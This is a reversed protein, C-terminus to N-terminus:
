FVFVEDSMKASAGPQKYGLSVLSKKAAAVMGPPGCIMVKSGEESPSPLIEAMMDKTVFGSGFKWESSHSELVYYVKFFKPYRRAFIDLEERLLIDQETRNAYILSIETTDRDSECIARIVQFMPTIGTGGAIMGVKKCLRRSYRMAGKPGRFHVEDGINLNALYGNTMKGDPYVKILLELIGKNANNSTPTYSRTVAEGDIVATIAVHQGTPLGLIPHSSPLTFTLRYVNPSVLEKKALPLPSSAAESDLWGRQQLINFEAPKPVKFHYPYRPSELSIVIQLLRRAILTHVSALAGAGVLLGMLFAILNKGLSSAKSVIDRDVGYTTLGYYLAATSLSIITYKATGSTTQEKSPSSNRKPATTPEVPAVRAKRKKYGKLKGIRLPVMLDFADDSHGANDFVESANTGAAEVLVEVGGPHSQIYKTVDYIEGHIAMWADGTNNHLGVEQLSYEVAEEM